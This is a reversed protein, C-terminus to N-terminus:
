SALMGFAVGVEKERRVGFWTSREREVGRPM